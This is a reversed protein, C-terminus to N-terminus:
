QARLDIEFETTDNPHVEVDYYKITEPNTRHDAFTIKNKYFSPVRQIVFPRGGGTHAYRGINIAFIFYDYLGGGENNLVVKLWAEKNLNFQFMNFKESTLLKHKDLLYYGEPGDLIEIYYMGYYEDLKAVHYFHGNVDTTFEHIKASKTPFIGLKGRKFLALRLGEVRIPEFTGLETISGEIVTDQPEEKQCGWLAMGFFFLTLKLAFRSTWAHWSGAAYLYRLKPEPGSVAKYIPTVDFNGKLARVAALQKLNM